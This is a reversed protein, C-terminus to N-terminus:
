FGFIGYFSIDKRAYLSNNFTTFTNPFLGEILLCVSVLFLLVLWSSVVYMVGPLLIISSESKQGLESKVLFLIKKQLLM